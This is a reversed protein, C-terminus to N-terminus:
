TLAPHGSLLLNKQPQVAATLPRIQVPINRMRPLGTYPEFYKDMMMLRSTNPGRERFEGDLEPAGGWAHAMLDLGRRLNGDAQAIGSTGDIESRIEM